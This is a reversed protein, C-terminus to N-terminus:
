ECHCQRLFATAHFRRILDASLAQRFFSMLSFYSFSGRETSFRYFASAAIMWNQWDMENISSIIASFFPSPTFFLLWRWLSEGMMCSLKILTPPLNNFDAIGGSALFGIMRGVFWWTVWSRMLCTWSFMPCLPLLWVSERKLCFYQIGPPFAALRFTM